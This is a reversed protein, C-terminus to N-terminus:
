FIITFTGRGQQLVSNILGGKQILLLTKLLPWEFTVNVISMIKLIKPGEEGKM